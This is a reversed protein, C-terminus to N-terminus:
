AVLSFQKIYAPGRLMKTEAIRKQYGTIDYSVTGLRRQPDIELSEPQWFYPFTPDNIQKATFLAPNWILTSGPNAGVLLFPNMVFRSEESPGEMSRRGSDFVCAGATGWWPKDDEIAGWIPNFPTYDGKLLEPHKAVEKKRMELIDDRKKYNFHVPYNIGIQVKNKIRADLGVAFKNTNEQANASATLASIGLALISAALKKGPLQM